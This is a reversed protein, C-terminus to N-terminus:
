YARRLSGTLQPVLDAHPLALAAGTAALAKEFGAPQSKIVATVPVYGQEGAARTVNMNALNLAAAEVRAKQALMGAASIEMTRFHDM